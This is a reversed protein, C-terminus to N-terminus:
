RRAYRSRMATQFPRIIRTMEDFSPESALTSDTAVWVTQPTRRPVLLVSADKEVVKVNDVDMGGIYGEIESGDAFYFVCLRGDIAAMAYQKDSMDTDDIPPLDDIYDDSTQPSAVEKYNPNDSYDVASM